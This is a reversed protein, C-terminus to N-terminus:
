IRIRKPDNVYKQKEELARGGNEPLFEELDEHIIVECLEAAHRVLGECQFKHEASNWEVDKTLVRCCMAKHTKRFGDHLKNVATYAIRESEYNHTRGALLSIVMTAGTVAGCACGSEGLGSGFATSIKYQEPPFGLEYVENFARLIAESCYLGNQFYRLSLAVARPMNQDLTAYIEENLAADSAEANKAFDEYLWTSLYREGSDPIVTVIRKGANEPRKSLEVAAWVNSAGSIGVLIGENEAMLHAYKSADEDIVTLIEDVIDMNMISPIFGAGIGQIRHPYAQGGSLVASKFPEVAVVRTSPDHEKLVEGIGTLTGGTGVGAVIIDVKGDTDRLIEQATTRRHVDVNAPNAFQDPIWSGPIQEHLEKAKEVSGVMSSYAETLVIEAGLANLIRRREISMTEPMTLILHYGKVACAVALGIGTNGSTPEIITAGPQIIGRREADELMALGVRDKVSSMPNYYELKLIVEAGGTNTKDSLLILPTNGILETINDAIKM